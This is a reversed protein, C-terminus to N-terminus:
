RLYKPVEIGQKLREDPILEGRNIKVAQVGAWVNLDYDEEDDKPGGTRVKASVEELSFGSPSILMLDALRASINGGAGTVLKEKLVRHAYAALEDRLNTTM